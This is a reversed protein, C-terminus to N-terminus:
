EIWQKLKTSIHESLAWNMLSEVGSQLSTEPKSGILSNLYLSSAFTEKVDSEFKPAYAIEIKRGSVKEIMSILENISRPSGGGINVVDSFGNPHQTLEGNLQIISNTVDDIYTFDRRLNGDGNLNFVYDGKTAALIRFYAMDPRGWPGYVTFFRLGRARTETGRVSTEALVENCLKTAGYFSVPKLGQESEVFPSSNTNGYVSSSSAYLFNPIKLDIVGQLLNQFGILNSSVYKWNDTPPIRVGAQAALHIVCNPKEKQLYESVEDKNILDLRTINSQVKIDLELLRLNKYEVSYYNSFNDLGIVDYGQDAFKKILSFGVFGAAGTVLVKM